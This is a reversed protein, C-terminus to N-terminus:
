VVYHMASALAGVLVDAALPLSARRNGGMALTAAMFYLAAHVPRMHNWWLPKGMTEAGTKRLGGVYIVAFGIAPLLLIPGAVFRLINEPLYHVVVALATRVTLCGLIFVVLQREM